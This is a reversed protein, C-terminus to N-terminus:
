ESLPQAATVHGPDTILMADAAAQLDMPDSQTDAIRARLM